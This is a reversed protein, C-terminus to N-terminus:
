LPEKGEELRAMVDEVWKPELQAMECVKYFDPYFARHRDYLWKSSEIEYKKGFTDILMKVYDKVQQPTGAILLGAPLNGRFCMTDGLVGPVDLLGPYTKDSM